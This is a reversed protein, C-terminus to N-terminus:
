EGDGLPTKRPGPHDLPQDAPEMGPLTPALLQRLRRIVDSARNGDRITRVATARAGEINPPDVALMRLCTSANTVIGALPQNIEHAISATLACLTAVRAARTLEARDRSLAEEALRGMTVDQVAGVFVLRDVIPPMRHGVAHIHKVAGDGTVIRAVLEFDEELAARALVGEVHPLDEPHIAGLIMAVTIKTQPAFEWIRYTEDSWHHEDATMDWTFSGTQSLEIGM